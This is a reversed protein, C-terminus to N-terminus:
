HYAMMILFGFQWGFSSRHSPILDIGEQRGAQHRYHHLCGCEECLYIRYRVKIAAENRLEVSYGVQYLEPIERVKNNIRM